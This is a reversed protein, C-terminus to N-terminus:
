VLSFLTVPQDSLAEDIFAALTCEMSNEGAEIYDFVM